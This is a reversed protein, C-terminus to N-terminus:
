RNEQVSLASLPFPDFSPAENVDLVSVTVSSQGQTAELLAGGANSSERLEVLLTYSPVLEFNLSGGGSTDVVLTGNGLLAFPGGDDDVLTFELPNGEPDSGTITGISFMDPSLCVSCGVWGLGVCCLM